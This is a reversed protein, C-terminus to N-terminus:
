VTTLALVGAVLVGTIFFTMYLVWLVAYKAATIRWGQGYVRKLAIYIYIFVWLLFFPTMVDGVGAVIGPFIPLDFIPLPLLALFAFAHLHLALVFHEVYFRRQRFFFAYLLFAYVPLLVFFVKPMQAIVTRMIRRTAEAEGLPALRELNRQASRTLQPIVFNVEADRVWNDSDAVPMRIGIFTGKQPRERLERQFATDTAVQQRAESAERSITRPSSEVILFVAFFTLSAILYLRLPAVYQQIRGSFYENTLFGPKLLLSKISRPLRNNVGFQAELFEAILNRVSVRREAQKQGCQPCFEGPEPHYCNPCFSPAPMLKLM